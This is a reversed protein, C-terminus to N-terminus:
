ATRTKYKVSIIEDFTLIIGDQNEGDTNSSFISIKLKM